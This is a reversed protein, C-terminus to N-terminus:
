DGRRVGGEGGGGTSCVEGEGCCIAYGIGEVGFLVQRCRRSLACYSTVPRHFRQDNWISSVPRSQPFLSTYLVTNRQSTCRAAGRCPRNEPLTRQSQPIEVVKDDFCPRSPRKSARWYSSSNSLAIDHHLYPCQTGPISKPIRRCPTDQPNLAEERSYWSFPESIQSRQYSGKKPNSQSDPAPEPAFPKTM